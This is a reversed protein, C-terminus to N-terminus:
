NALGLRATSLLVEQFPQYRRSQDYTLVQLELHNRKFQNAIGFLIQKSLGQLEKTLLYMLEQSPTLYLVMEVRHDSEIADRIERYRKASKATREYELAFKAKTGGLDVTVVADYDKLVEGYIVLNESLVELEGQWSILRESRILALRIDNLELMHTAKTLDVITKSFSGLSLLCHGYSELLALGARSIAYVPNGLHWLKELKTLLDAKLLRQVRKYALRRSTEQKSLLLMDCIQDLRIARANRVMLLLPIDRSESVAIKGKEYRM